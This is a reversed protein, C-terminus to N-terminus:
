EPVPKLIAGTDDDIKVVALTDVRDAQEQTQVVFWARAGPNFNITVRGTTDGAADTQLFKLAAELVEQETMRALASTATGPPPVPVVTLRVTSSAQSYFGFQNVYRANVPQAWLRPPVPLERGAVLGRPPIGPAPSGTRTEETREQREMAFALRLEMETSPMQYWTAQLGFQSLVPDEDIRRQTEISHRDLEAQSRGIGSGLAVILEELPAALLEAVDQPDVDAM